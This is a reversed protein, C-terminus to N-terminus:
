RESPCMRLNVSLYLCQRERPRTHTFTVPVIATPRSGIDIAAVGSPECTHTPLPGVPETDTMETDTMETDDPFIVAVMPPPGPM